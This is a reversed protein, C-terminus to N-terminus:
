KKSRKTKKTKEANTVADSNVDRKTVTRSRLRLALPLDDDDMDICTELAVGDVLMLLVGAFAGLQIMQLNSTSLGISSTVQVSDEDEENM